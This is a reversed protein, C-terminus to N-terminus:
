DAGSGPVAVVEIEVLASPMALREIQVWTAAPLHGDYAAMRVPNVAILADMDTTFVTEKVVDGLDADFQALVAGLRQYITRVQEEMTAGRAVVGSVWVTGDIEIADAYGWSPHPGVSRQEQARAPQAAVALILTLALAHVLRAPKM